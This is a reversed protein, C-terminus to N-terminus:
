FNFTALKVRKFRFQSTSQVSADAYDIALRWVIGSLGKWWVIGTITGWADRPVYSSGDDTLLNWFLSGTFKKTKQNSSHFAVQLQIRLHFQPRTTRPLRWIMRLWSGLFDHRKGEISCLFPRLEARQWQGSCHPLRRKGNINDVSDQFKSTQSWLAM